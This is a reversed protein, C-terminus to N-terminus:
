PAPVEGLVELEAQIRKDDPALELAARFAQIAEFNRYLGRYAQGRLYHAEVFSPTRAVLEDLLDLADQHRNHKILLQAM